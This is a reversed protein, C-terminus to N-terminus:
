FNEYADIIDLYAGDFGNAIIKDLYSDSNGYIIKKWETKWYSVKYNGPWDPNEEFLWSPPKKSWEPKWYYRYDEAEGISMYSVVLRKSGNNKTKLNVLDAASLTNDNYFLDIIILDYDTSDIENLFDSKSIFNQPNIFYLFNSASNLNNIHNTNFSFGIPLVAPLKDLERSDAQFSIYGETQNKTFSDNINAITSCYDTVMIKKSYSIAIDLFSIIADTDEIPTMEDDNYYGYFLDEIGMGDIANIYDTQVTGTSKGDSTIIDHGNQPIIIFNPNINKAYLSIEKVFGRM